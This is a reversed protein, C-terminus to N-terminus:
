SLYIGFGEVPIDFLVKAFLFICLYLYISEHPSVHSLETHSRNIRLQRIRSEIEVRLGTYRKKYFM